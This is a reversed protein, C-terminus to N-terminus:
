AADGGGKGEDPWSLGLEACVRKAWDLARASEAIKAPAWRKWRMITGERKCDPCVVAASIVVHVHPLYGCHSCRAYPGKRVALEYKLEREDEGAFPRERVVALKVARLDARTEDYSREPTGYRLLTELPIRFGGKM